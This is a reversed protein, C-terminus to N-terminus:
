GIGLERRQEMGASIGSSWTIMTPDINISTSEGFGGFRADCTRDSGGAPSTNCAHLHHPAPYTMSTAVGSM